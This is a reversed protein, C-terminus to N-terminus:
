HINVLLYKVRRMGKRQEPANERQQFVEFQIDRGGEGSIGGDRRDSRRIKGPAKLALPRVEPRTTLDPPTAPTDRGSVDFGYQLGKPEM